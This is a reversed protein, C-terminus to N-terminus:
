LTLTLSSVGFAPKRFLRVDLMPEDTRLQWAVFLGLAVLGAALWGLTSASVWGKAPAEILGYVLSGVGATSLVAGLLDIRGGGPPVPPTGGVAAAHAALSQDKSTPVLVFGAVLAGFALPLNLVFVSQWSFHELIFGNLIMGVAAGGGAIGAWVAIAKARESAPFVNTLISLTSPMIMAGALGMVARAAILGSATQTGFAAYGSALGFLVLGAQMVGKRGFRDGVTSTTFLLGAFVLSYADVIWQMASQSLGISEAIKPLALNLATNGQMVLLLSTCLVGLIIWRRPHAEPDAGATTLSTPNMDDKEASTDNSKLALRCGHRSIGAAAPVISRSHWPEPFPVHIAGPRRDDIGGQGQERFLPERLRRDVGDRLSGVDAPAREEAVERGLLRHEEVVDVVLDLGRHVGQGGTRRVLRREHRQHAHQPPRG